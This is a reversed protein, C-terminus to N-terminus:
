NKKFMLGIVLGVFGIATFVTFMIGLNAFGTFLTSTALISGSGIMFMSAMIPEDTRYWIGFTLAILPLLYFVNGEGVLGQFFNTFTSFATELPNSIFESGNVAM